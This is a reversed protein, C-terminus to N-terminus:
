YREIKKDFYLFLWKKAKIYAIKKYGAKEIGKISAINDTDVVLFLEEFEKNEKAIHSIVKPYISRGRYNPNTYCSGIVLGSKNILKIIQVNTYLFSKHVVIDSDFMWYSKKGNTTKTQIPLETESNFAYVEESSAFIFVEVTVIKFAKKIKNLVAM